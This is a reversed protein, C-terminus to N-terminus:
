DPDACAQIRETLRRAEDSLTDYLPAAAQRMREAETEDLLAMSCGNHSAHMMARVEASMWHERQWAAADAACRRLIAQDAESLGAMTRSSAVLLDTNYSHRDYVWYPALRYYGSDVYTPLNDEAGDVAGTRLALALDDGTLPVAEAGANEVLEVMAQSASISLRLGDMEALSGIPQRVSFFCRFGAYLYTLGTLGSGDLSDLVTQGVSGDLVRFLHNESTYVYPMQLATLLPAYRTAESASVRVFDIGGYACQDLAAAEDGLTGGWYPEIQIRGGTEDAVADCFRALAQNTVFNDSRASALRLHLVPTEGGDTRACGTLLLPIFLLTCVSRKLLM